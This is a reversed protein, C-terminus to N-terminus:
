ETAPDLLIPLLLMLLWLLLSMLLLPTHPEWDPLLTIVVPPLVGTM